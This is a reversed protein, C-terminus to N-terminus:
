AEAQRAHAFADFCEAPRESIVESLSPFPSVVTLLGAATPRVYAEIIGARM